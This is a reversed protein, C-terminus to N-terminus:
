CPENDVINHLKIVPKLINFMYNIHNNLMGIHKKIRLYHLIKRNVIRDYLRRDWKGGIIWMFDWNQCHPICYIIEGSNKNEIKLTM